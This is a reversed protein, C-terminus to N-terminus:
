RTEPKTLRKFIEVFSGAGGFPKVVSSVASPKEGCLIFSGGCEQPMAAPFLIHAQRALDTEFFDAVALCNLQKLNPFLEPELNAGLVLLIKLKNEALAARVSQSHAGRASFKQLTQRAGYTNAAAHFCLYKKGTKQALELGAAELRLDDAPAAVVIIGSQSASLIKEAEVLTAALATPAPTEAEKNFLPVKFFRTAFWSTHSATEDIVIIQNGRKGYKVANIYRSFCPTKELVDGLIVLTDLAAIEEFAAPTPERTTQTGPLPQIPTPQAPSSTLIEFYPTAITEACFKEANELEELSAQGSILVGVESGAVKELQSSLEKIVADWSTSISENNVKLRPHALRAPSTLMALLDHGRPCLSGFNIPNQADYAIELVNNGDVVFGVGCGM